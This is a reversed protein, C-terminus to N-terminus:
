VEYREGNFDKVAQIMAEINEVPIDNTVAHTPAFIYGGGSAMIKLTEISKKYVEETTAYPLFQQTSVAGWFTLDKGYEKKLTPLDYIEPQVTNYVDLGMDILDGLIPRLDGCSHLVMYKGKSKIKSFMKAMPPKIYKRWLDPGMILGHQQGWDDGFFVGEFDGDLVADLVELHHNLIKDYLQYTFKEELLMDMLINEMGRLSWSREFFNLTLNFLRFRNTTDHEFTTLISNCLEKDLSPAVFDEILAEKLPYEKVMGVDGGDSGFTWPIGFIDVEDGNELKRNKKYKVRVIHNEFYFDVDSCGRLQQTKEIFRHTLDINWPIPESSNHHITEIVRQKM